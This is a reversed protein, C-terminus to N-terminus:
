KKNYPSVDEDTLSRPNFFSPPQSAEIDAKAKEDTALAEEKAAQTERARGKYFASIQRAVQTTDVGHSSFGPTAALKRLNDLAVSETPVLNGKEDNTVTDFAQASIEPLQAMYPQKSAVGVGVGSFPAAKGGNQLSSLKNSSNTLMSHFVDFDDAYEWKNQDKNWTKGKDLKEALGEKNTTQYQELNTLRETAQKRQAETLKPDKTSDLLKKGIDNMNGQNDFLLISDKSAQDAQDEKLVQRKALANRTWSDAAEAQSRQRTAVEGLHDDQQKQLDTSKQIQGLFNGMDQYGVTFVKNAPDEAKVTNPDPSGNTHWAKNMAEMKKFMNPNQKDIGTSKAKSVMDDTVVALPNYLAYVAENRYQLIGNADKTQKGEADLVPVKESDIVAQDYGLYNPHADKFAKSMRGTQPDVLEDARYTAVPKMGASNYADAKVKDHVKLLNVGYSQGELDKDYEQQHAIQALGVAKIKENALMIKDMQQQYDFQKVQRTEENSKRQEEQAKLQNQYDQQAQQRKEANQKDTLNNAAVVGGGLGAMLGQAFNQEGHNPGIGQAGTAAAALINRFFQGPKQPTQTAVTKGTQPDINYETDVGKGISDWIHKHAQAAQESQPQAPPPTAPSSLPQGPMSMGAVPPTGSAPTTPSPISSTADPDPGLTDLFAM